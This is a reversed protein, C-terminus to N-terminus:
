YAMDVADRYAEKVHDPMTAREDPGLEIVDYLKDKLRLQHRVSQRLQKTVRYCDEQGPYTVRYVHVLSM